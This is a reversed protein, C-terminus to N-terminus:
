QPTEANRKQQALRLSLELANESRAEEARGEGRLCQALASHFGVGDSKVALAMRAYREGESFQGSAADTLSLKYAAAARMNARPGAALTEGPAPETVQMVKLFAAREQEDQRLSGFLNGRALWIAPSNPHYRLGDDLVALARAPDGQDKYLFAMQTEAKLNSPAIELVRAWLKNDSDWFGTEHWGIASWLAVLALALALRAKGPLDGLRLIAWAVLACFAYGSLYLYRDHESVMPSVIVPPALNVVFWIGLFAAVASRKRRWVLWAAALGAVLAAAPLVFGRLTPQDYVVPTYEVSLGWPMALHKLYWWAAYPATWLNSFTYTPHIYDASSPAPKIVQHRIWLYAACVAGYPLLALLMDKMRGALSKQRPAHLWLYAAMLVPICVMTEKTLLAAAFLVISAAQWGHASPSGVTERRTERSNEQWKVFCIMTAFFFVAVLGDVCSSGIWAVTEVKSPHVGYLVAALLALADDRFLHRGLVFALWVVTLHLAIAGLHMWGPAGGTLTGYVFAYTMALPRYYVSHVNTDFGFIDHTFFKPVDRWGVDRQSVINDDYVPAFLIVRVYLALLLALAGRIWWELGRLPVIRQAASASSAAAACERPSAAARHEVPQEIPPM